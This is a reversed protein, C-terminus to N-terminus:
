KQLLSGFLAIAEQKRQYYTSREIHLQPWLASDGSPNDCFYAGELIAHYLPGNQPFAAVAALTRRMLIAAAGYGRQPASASAERGLLSNILARGSALEASDAGTQQSELSARWALERYSRLLQRVQKMVVRPDQGAAHWDQEFHHMLRSKSPM